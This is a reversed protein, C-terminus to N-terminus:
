IEKRDWWVMKRNRLKKNSEERRKKGKLGDENRLVEYNLVMLGTDILRATSKLLMLWTREGRLRELYKLDILSLELDVFWFSLLKHRCEM